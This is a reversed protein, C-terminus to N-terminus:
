QPMTGSRQGPQWGVEDVRTGVTISWRPGDPRDVVHRYSLSMRPPASATKPVAHEWAHQCAGGMVLLDGSGLLWRHANGGGMPRLGFTRPGGLSVIAVIPNVEHIGIKDAHWAVSDSGSRYYNVFGPSLGEGYRSELAETIEDLVPYRRRSDADLMAHLRPEDVLRGYMPRRSHRWPLADALDALLEDAGALWTHAHDVWTFEDLWTREVGTDLVTPAGQGFVSTQYALM